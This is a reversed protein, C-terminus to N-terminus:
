LTEILRKFVQDKEGMADVESCIGRQKYYEIVPRTQNEYVELRNKIRDPFDDPRQVLKGSLCAPCTEQEQNMIFNSVHFIAGCQSCIRRGSLRDVLVRTDISLNVVKAVKYQNNLTDLLKAQNVTRPFGDLLIKKDGQEKLFNKLVEFLLDDDVLNGGAIVDKVKLGVETEKKIQDRLM